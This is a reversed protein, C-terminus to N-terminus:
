LSPKAGATEGIKEPEMEECGPPFKKKNKKQFRSLLKESGFCNRQRWEAYIHTAVQEHSTPGIKCADLYKRERKKEPVWQKREKKSLNQQLHGRGVAM